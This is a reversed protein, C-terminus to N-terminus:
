KSIQYTKDVTYVKGNGNIAALRVHLVAPYRKAINDPIDFLGKQSTGLVRFGQGDAAVEGTWLWMMSRTARTERKVKAAYPMKTSLAWDTKSPETIEYPVKQPTQEVEQMMIRRAEFKYSKLMSEKKGERSLHLVWDHASDPPEGTFKEGKYDKKQTITEGTVPNFWMVDYGHKEVLVEVPGPKEVYVIYEIGELAVARGGDVDFYPELDWHRTGSFFSVFAALQKPDPTDVGNTSIYQGNMAANWMGRRFADPGKADVFGTNVFPAAYLQHEVAGLASEASSQIVHDMWGDDLLAASTASTGTSRPHQYPDLKKLLVGLEKLLERGTAYREFEDLGQWTVNMASYRGALYKILRERDQWGPFRTSLHDPGTALILDAVIGKGNLYLIREDLLGFLAPDPKDPAPFIKVSDEPGGLVSFRLHNFKAAAARDSLQRAEDSGAFAFRMETAGIWLHPTLSDAYSFHHVNAARVFGLTESPTATIKGMTGNYAAVNSTVRYDWDGAENPAFRIIMRKGGDWFAPMRFTRHRPSRFEAHLEVQTYPNSPLDATDFVLDCPVYVPASPCPVQAFVPVCAVVAALFSKPM